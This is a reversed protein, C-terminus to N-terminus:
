DDLRRHYFHSNKELSELYPYLKKYTKNVRTLQLGLRGTIGPMFGQIMTKRSGEKLTLLLRRTSYDGLLYDLIGDLTIVNHDKLMSKAKSEAASLLREHLWKLKPDHQSYTRKCADEGENASICPKNTKAPVTVGRDKCDLTKEATRALITEFSHSLNICYITVRFKHDGQKSKWRTLLESTLEEDNAERIFPEWNYTIQKMKLRLAEPEHTGPAEVRKLFAKLRKVAYPLYVNTGALTLEDNQLHNLASDLLAMILWHHNSKKLGIAKFEEPHTSEDLNEFQFLLEELRAKAEDLNLTEQKPNALNDNDTM